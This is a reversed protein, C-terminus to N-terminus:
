DRVDRLAISFTLQTRNLVKLLIFINKEKFNITMKNFLDQNTEKQNYNIILILNLVSSSYMWDEKVGIKIEM